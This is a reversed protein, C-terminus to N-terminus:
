FHPPGHGQALGTRLVQALVLAPARGGEQCRIQALRAVRNPRMIPHNVTCRSTAMAM